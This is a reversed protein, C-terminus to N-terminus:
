TSAREPHDMTARRTALLAAIGLIGAGVTLGIFFGHGGTLGGPLSYALLLGIGGTALPLPLRRHSASRTPNHISM